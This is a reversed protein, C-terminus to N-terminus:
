PQTGSSLGAAPSAAPAPSETTTQDGAAAGTPTLVSFSMIQMGTMNAGVGHSPDAQIAPGWHLDVVAQYHHQDIQSGDQLSTTFATWGVVYENDRSPPPIKDVAIRVRVTAARVNPDYKQYYQAFVQAAQSPTAVFPRVFQEINRKNEDIDGVSFASQIVLPLFYDIFQQRIQPTQISPLAAVSVTRDSKNIVMAGIFPQKISNLYALGYGAICLAFLVYIMRWLRTNERLLRAAADNYLKPNPLYPNPATVEASPAATATSAKGNGSTPTSM